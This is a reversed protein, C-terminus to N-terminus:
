FLFIGFSDITVHVNILIQYFDGQFSFQPVFPINCYGQLTLVESKGEGWPRSSYLFM